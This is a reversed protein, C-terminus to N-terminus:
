SVTFTKVASGNYGKWEKSTTNYWVQGDSPSGPDSALKPFMETWSTSATSGSTTVTLIQGTVGPNDPLVFGYASGSIAGNIASLQVYHSSAGDHLFIGGANGPSFPPVDIDPSSISSFTSNSSWSLNGSGDNQLLTNAGGQASPLILPYSTGSAAARLFVNSADDATYFLIQSGGHLLLANEGNPTVIQSVDLTNISVTTPLSLTVTPGGPNTSVIQNATGNVASVTGGSALVSGNYTLRDSSDVALVNNGSNANNRFDITDTKALRLVGATAPNSTLSTFYKSLLGFSAGFNLDGTLTFTGATPVVGNPIAVLFNTVSQGWGFDGVDPISYTAGSPKPFQVSESM